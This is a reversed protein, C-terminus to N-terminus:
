RIFGALSPLVKTVTPPDIPVSRRLNKEVAREGKLDVLNSIPPTPSSIGTIFTIVQLHIIIHSFPHILLDTEGHILKVIYFSIPHWGFLIYLTLFM